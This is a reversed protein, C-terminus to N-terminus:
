GRWVGGVAKQLYNGPTILRKFLIIGQESIEWLNRQGYGDCSPQHAYTNRPKM